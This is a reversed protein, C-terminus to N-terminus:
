NAVPSNRSQRQRNAIQHHAKNRTFKLYGSLMMRSRAVSEILEEFVLRWFGFLWMVTEM